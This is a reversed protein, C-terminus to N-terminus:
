ARETLAAVELDRFADRLGDLSSSVDGIDNGALDLLSADATASLELLKTYVEAVDGVAADLQHLLRLRRTQMRAVADAVGAHDRSGTWRSNAHQAHDLAQDLGDIAAAVRAAVERAGGAAVLAEIAPDTIATSLPSARLQELSTVYGDLARVLAEQDTNPRLDLDPAPQHTADPEGHLLAVTAFTAWAVAGIGAAAVFPIGVAWALGAMLAGTLLAWPDRAQIGWLSLLRQRRSRPASPHSTTRM